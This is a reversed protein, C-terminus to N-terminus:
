VKNTYEKNILKKEMWHIIKLIIKNRKLTKFGSYIWATRKCYKRLISYTEREFDDIHNRAFGDVPATVIEFNMHRLNNHSIISYLLWEKDACVKYGLNFRHVDLCSKKAFIAQHCICDGSLYYIKKRCINGYKRICSTNGMLHVINGYLIDNAYKEAYQNVNLLVKSDCFCDGANLFFVYEGMAKEAAINMADYIGKDNESIIHVNECENVISYIQEITNDSSHGDKIIYEYNTFEQNIVSKITDIICEEANYAVTIISFKYQDM